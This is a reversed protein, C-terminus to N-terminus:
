EGWLRCCTGTPCFEACPPRGAPPNGERAEDVEAPFLTGKELATAFMKLQFVTRAVEGVLRPEGLASEEDAIAVVEACRTELADAITVLVRARDHMSANRYTLWARHSLQAIRAVDASSHDEIALDLSEGTRPNTWVRPAM